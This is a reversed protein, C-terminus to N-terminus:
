ALAPIGGTGLRQDLNGDGCVEARMPLTNVATRPRQQKVVFIAGATSVGSFTEAHPWHVPM